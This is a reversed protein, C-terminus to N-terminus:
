VLTQILLTLGLVSVVCVFVAGTTAGVGPRSSAPPLVLQAVDELLAFMSHVRGKEQLM